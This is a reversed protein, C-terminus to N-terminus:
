ETNCWDSAPSKVPSVPDSGSVGGDVGEFKIFYLKLYSFLLVKVAAKSFNLKFDTFYNTSLIRDGLEVKGLEQSGEESGGSRSSFHFIQLSCPGTM